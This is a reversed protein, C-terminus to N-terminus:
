EGRPAISGPGRRPDRLSSPPGLIESLIVAQGWSRAGGLRGLSSRRKAVSAPASAESLEGGDDFDGISRRQEVAARPRRRAEKAKREGERRPAAQVREHSKREREALERAERQQAQRERREVERAREEQMRRAAEDEDFTGAGFAGEEGRELGASWSAEAETSPPAPRPAPPPATPPGQARAPGEGRLLQEFLELGQPLDIPGREGQPARPSRPPPAVGQGRKKAWEFLARLAPLLFIALLIGVQVLLDLLEKPERPRQLLALLAPEISNM